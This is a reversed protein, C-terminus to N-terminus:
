NHISEIHKIVNAAKERIDEEPDESAIKKLIPISEPKEFFGLMTIGYSRFDYPDDKLTALWIAYPYAAEHKM